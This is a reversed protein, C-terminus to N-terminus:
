VYGLLWALWSEAWDAGSALSLAGVFAVAVAVRRVKIGWTM